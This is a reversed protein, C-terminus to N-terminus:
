LNALSAAEADEELSHLCLIASIVMNGYARVRQVPARQTNLPYDGM